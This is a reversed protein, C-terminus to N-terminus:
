ARRPLNPPNPCSQTEYIIPNKPLVCRLTASSTSVLSYPSFHSLSSNLSPMRMKCRLLQVPELGNDHEYVGQVDGPLTDGLQDLVRHPQDSVDPINYFRVLIVRPFLWHIALREAEPRPKLILLLPCLQLLQLSLGLARGPVLLARCGPGRCPKHPVGQVSTHLKDPSHKRALSSTHWCSTSGARSPCSWWRSRSRAPRTTRRGWCTGPPCAWLSWRISPTCPRCSPPAGWRHSQSRPPPSWRWGAAWCRANDLSCSTWDELPSLVELWSQWTLAPHQLILHCPGPTGPWLSMQGTWAPTWIASFIM